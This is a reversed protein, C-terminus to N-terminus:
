CQLGEFGVPGIAKLEEFLNVLDKRRVELIQADMKEIEIKSTTGFVKQIIHVKLAKDAKSRANGLGNLDFCGEILEIQIQRKTKVSL